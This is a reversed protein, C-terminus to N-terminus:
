AERGLMIDQLMGDVGVVERIRRIQKVAAAAEKGMVVSKDVAVASTWAWCSTSWESGNM